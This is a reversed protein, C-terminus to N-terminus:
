RARGEVFGIERPPAEAPALDIGAEAGPAATSDPELGAREAIIRAM